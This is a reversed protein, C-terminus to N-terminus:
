DEDIKFVLMVDRLREACSHYAASHQLQRDSTITDRDALSKSSETLYFNEYFKFEKYLNKVAEELTM